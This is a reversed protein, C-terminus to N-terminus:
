KLVLFPSSDFGSRKAIVSLDLQPLNFEKTLRDRLEAIDKSWRRGPNAKGTVIANAFTYADSNYTKEMEAPKEGRAEAEARATKRAVDEANIKMALEELQAQTMKEIEIEVNGKAKDIYKVKGKFTEVMRKVFDPPELMIALDVDWTKGAPAGAEQPAQVEAPAAEGAEAPPKKPRTIGMTASGQMRVEANELGPLGHVGEAAAKSFAAFDRPIDDLAEGKSGIFGQPIPLTKGYFKGEILVDVARRVKGDLIVVDDLAGRGKKGLYCLVDVAQELKSENSLAELVM